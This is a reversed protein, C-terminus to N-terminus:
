NMRRQRSTGILFCIFSIMLCDVADINYGIGISIQGKRGEFGSKDSTDRYLRNRKGEERVLRDRLTESM